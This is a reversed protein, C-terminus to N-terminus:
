NRLVFRLNDAVMGPKVRFVFALLFLPLMPAKYRVLNGLVPTAMGILVFYALAGFLLFLFLNLDQTRKWDTYITCFILFVVVFVNEVASAIMFPNKSEWILPRFITNVLATPAAKVISWGDHHLAPIHIRSGAHHYEAERVAHVQKTILMQQLNVTPIAKHINLAILFLAACVAVYKLLIFSDSTKGRFLIFALAAPILCALVFFKTFLILISGFILSFLSKFEIRQFRFHFIGYVFMGIGLVLVPEKIVGSTWFLVSPLMLVFLALICTRTAAFRLISNTLLVLGLLSVFCMFAIHVFYTKFSLFMLLANLRIITRNENIPAEDFNRNWNKLEAIKSGEAAKIQAGCIMLWFTSPNEERIEHLTLADSYFKHIDNSEIDTYYFTYVVWMLIGVVFKLNFILHTVWTKFSSFQFIRFRYILFNFLFLYFLTWIIKLVM